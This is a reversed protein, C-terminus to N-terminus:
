RVPILLIREPTPEEELANATQIAAVTSGTSKAINWLGANGARRLILSPRNEERATEEGLALGTVMPLGRRSSTNVDLVTDGKLELGNGTGATPSAGPLVTARVRIEEGGPM